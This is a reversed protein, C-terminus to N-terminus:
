LLCRFLPIIPYMFVYICHIIMYSVKFVRSVWRAQMEFMPLLCQSNLLGIFALNPQELGVPFVYRYLDPHEADFLPHDVISLNTEYGTALIIVDVDEFSGDKFQIGSSTVRSMEPKLKIRGNLICHPIYDNVQQLTQSVLHRPKLGHFAHDMQANLDREIQWWYLRPLWQRLTQKYRTFRTIDWPVGNEACRKTLWV